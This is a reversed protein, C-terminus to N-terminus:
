VHARGIKTVAPVFDGLARGGTAHFLQVLERPLEVAFAERPARALAAARARERPPVADLRSIFRALGRTLFLEPTAAARLM